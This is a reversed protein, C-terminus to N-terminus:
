AVPTGEIKVKVTGSTSSSIIVQGDSIIATVGALGNTFLSVFEPIIGSTSSSITQPNIGDLTVEMIVYPLVSFSAIKLSRSVELNTQSLTNGHPNSTLLTHQSLNAYLIKGTTDDLVPSSGSFNVTALLLYNSDTKEESFAQVQVSSPNNKMSDSYIAYVYWVSGIELNEIKFDSTRYALAGSIIATFTAYKGANEGSTFEVSNASSISLSCSDSTIDSLTYIADTLIANTCGYTSIYLLSDIIDARKKEDAENLYDEVGMYPISFFTTNNRYPM